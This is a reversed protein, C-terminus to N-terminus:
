PLRQAPNKAIDLNTAMLGKVVKFLSKLAGESYLINEYNKHSHPQMAMLVENAFNDYEDILLYVKYGTQQTLAILKEFSALANNEDIEPKHPLIKNYQLGFTQIAVNLHSHLARQIDAPSGQPAVHSFDWRLILYQNHSPTPHQGIYLDGFLTEFQDAKNLDYYNELTSLWLSKGFRRPRLFLLADGLAEVVPILHTRDLYIYNQTILKDFKAIGYPFKM